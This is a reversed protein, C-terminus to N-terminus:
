NKAQILLLKESQFLENTDFHFGQKGLKEELRDQKVKSKIDAVEELEKITDKIKVSSFM